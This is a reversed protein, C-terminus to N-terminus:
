LVLVASADPLTGSRLAALVQRGDGPFRGRLTERQEALVRRNTATDSVLLIIRDMSGDRQKLAIRRELAQLDQLRTEGEVAVRDAGTGLVLDWARKDHAIALPVETRVQISSPIRARLRALLALHGVDRVSDGDPYARVVLKLGVAGCARALQDVTVNALVGREIRGFQAHSMGVSRGAVTQSVGIGRRADLLEAGIAVRIARSIRDAEAGRDRRTAMPATHGYHSCSPKSASRKRIFAPRESCRNM